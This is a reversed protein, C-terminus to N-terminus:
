GFAMLGKNDEALHRVIYRLADLTHDHEEIPENTANGDKDEKFRYMGIERILNTSSNVILLEYELIKLIGFYISNAGKPTPKINYFRKLEAIIEPRASDAIIESGRSINLRQLENVIGQSTLGSKYLKECIYLKKNLKDLKCHILATPDNFGFDLGYGSLGKANDFEGISITKFKPYVLGGEFPKPDQQYLAHFARPNAGKIENLRKLSHKSEWLAEGIERPDNENINGECIAPLSLITWSNDHNLHKLIRGSLDDLNWRTQTVIIQSDNHLRTMFVQTFWDWVRARYTASEAEVADKVPDDIIGIDAPTGTLSGGVGVSKYFGRHNVIEFLDSNRLFNGKAATRVNSSNLLTDPFIDHYKEDDIIRQVDRNFSTALDASYSCGIIKAKPNLGLIFAPLRRSTLESNHTPILDYGALYMGGDVEICNGLVHENEDTISQIFLKYKDDRDGNIKNNLRDQKRELNFIHEGKNPNFTVRCKKGVNVGNLIADYYNIRAKFGLSRLLTYVDKVLQNEKQTFECNGRKDICGDTDMLGRLLEFRQEKSSLLYEIPIHKNKYLNNARLKTTLGNILVRYIGKKVERAEGLKSFHEKDEQGVTLVGQRSHGDGLWCGLIYPDIPLEKQEIQLATSIDIYPSRRHKRKFIDKTECTLERRGKHDDYEVKLKWLHENACKISKGDQFNINVVKWEYSGSNALVMKPMGDQGFVYDGRKLDGHNVWGKTTLVPTDVPLLKGHQPPMFVM